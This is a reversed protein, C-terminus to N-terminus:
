NFCKWAGNVRFAFAGSGSGVCTTDVFASTQTCDSCYIYDGNTPSGPLNTFTVSKQRTGGYGNVRFAESLANPTNGTSTAIATQFIIAGGVGTGTGRSGSLTWNAGATDTTGTVVNQVSLTQAVPSAASAAGLRFNAAAERMLITDCTSPDSTNNSFCFLGGSVNRINAAAATFQLTGNLNLASAEIRALNTNVTLLATGASNQISFSPNAGAAGAKFIAAGSGKSQFLFGVNTDGGSATFTPSSGTAANAYAVENVASTTATFLFLENGNADNIGTTVQPSTAILNGSTFTVATGNTTAGSIGGFAGANNRQLQTDSGGPSGGAAAAWEPATAGANMTLVQGATGKPLRTLVNSARYYTDGDADSGLTMTVGGLVNSSATLTKNTFISTSGLTPVSAANTGATTIRLEGTGMTLIGSSHTVVVNSSAFNLVAGSALFLDSWSLSTTGLANGDNASPSFDAGSLQVKKTLTGAVAVSFDMRGEESTSTNTPIAWTIRAVEKQSGASNLLSGSIYAEDNATFTARAGRLLMLQLSASNATNTGTFPLSATSLNVSSGTAAGIVPTTLTVFTGNTTAGTIGGFSGANNYQLQTNSGGPSGGGGGGTALQCVKGSCSLSGNSVIITTPSLVNPSGDAEKIRWPPSSQGFAPVGIGALLLIALFLKNKM